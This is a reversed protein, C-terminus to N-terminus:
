KLCNAYNLTCKLHVKFLPTSRMPMSGQSSRAGGCWTAVGWGERRVAGSLWWSGRQEKADVWEIHELYICDYMIRDEIDKERQLIRKLNVWVPTHM